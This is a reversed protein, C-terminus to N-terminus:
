PFARKNDGMNNIEWKLDCSVPCFFLHLSQMALSDPPHIHFVRKRPIVHSICNHCCLFQLERFSVQLFSYSIFSPPSSASFTFHDQVLQFPWARTIPQSYPELVRHVYMFNHFNFKFVYLGFVIGTDLVVQM